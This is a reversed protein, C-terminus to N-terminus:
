CNYTNILRWYINAQGLAYNWYPTEVYNSRYLEQLAENDWYNLQYIYGGCYDGGTVIANAPQASIGLGLVVLIAAMSMTVLLRRLRRM